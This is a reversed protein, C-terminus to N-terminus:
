LRSAPESPRLTSMGQPPQSLTRAARAGAQWSRPQQQFHRWSKAPRLSHEARSLNTHAAPCGGSAGHLSSPQLARGPCRESSGQAHELHFPEQFASPIGHCKTAFAGPSATGCLIGADTCPLTGPSSAASSCVKLSRHQFPIHTGAPGAAPSLSGPSIYM